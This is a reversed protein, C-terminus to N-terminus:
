GDTGSLEVPGEAIKPSALPVRVEVRTGMGPRSWITIEGGVALVREHMGVLGLGENYKAATADFGKGSDSIRLRIEEAESKLEVVATKSGSHKIVNRLSEQVVRYLCLATEGPLSRPVDGDSFEVLLTKQRSLEKCYSRVAAVLGLDELKSPHLWHSLRHIDSTLEQTQSWLGRIRSNWDQRTAPPQQTLQELDIAILALRQSFDDHLERAVRRREEEQVMLMRVGMERLNKEVKKRETVDECVQLMCPVGGFEIRQTSLLAIRLDGAKTRYQIEQDRLSAQAATPVSILEMSDPNVYVGLERPAHGIIEDVRYGTNQEFAKNADIYRGTALSLITMAVPSSRFAMSFKEESKRLEQIFQKRDMATAVADGVMQMCAVDNDSWAVPRAHSHLGICGFIGAKARMPVTLASQHGENEMFQREEVADEPYDDRSTIRVIGGNLLLWENRPLTGMPVSQYNQIKPIVHPGCWEYTARWSTRDTAFEIVFAHDAGIFEATERLAEEVSADVEGPATTAFRHLLTNMLRSFAVEQTLAKEVQKRDSIDRQVLWVRTLSGQEVIGTVRNDFWRLSAASDGARTVHDLLRYGSRVFAHLFEKYQSSLPALLDALKNGILFQPFAIGYTRTFADNCEALHAHQLLYEAQDGESLLLPMPRDMEFRAIGESSHALFALYRAESKRLSAEALKRKRRQILLLIILITEAAILLAVEIILRKNLTWFTPQRFLVISGPPLRQESLHWRQLQRWDFMYSANDESLVPIKDPSEGRLVELGMEAAAKGAARFSVLDGGVMGSGLYNEFVSYTPASSSQAIRVLVEKPLFYEGVGDRWMMMYLVITHEPLHALRKSLENMPLDTLYTLELKGEYLRLDNQVEKMWDREYPLTGGVVVVRRTDPQLRLAADLTKGIKTTEVIGTVNAPLPLRVIWRRDVTCFVIPTGPFLKKGYSLIFNIAPLSIPIILDIKENSYKTRLFTQLEKEHRPSPFRVLDLFETYFKIPEPRGAKLTARLSEDFDSFLGVENEFSYLILVRKQQLPETSASVDPLLVGCFLALLLGCLVEATRSCGFGINGRVKM